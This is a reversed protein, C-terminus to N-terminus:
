NQPLYVTFTSGNGEESEVTMKGNHLEVIQRAIALGLGVGESSRFKEVRYFSKFIHEQEEKSIGCGYDRIRAVAYGEECRTTITVVVKEKSYKVANNILNQFLMMVLIVDVTIDIEQLDLQFEIERQAKIEEEECVSQIIDKLSIRERKLVVNDRELRSLELLQQIINNVKLAQRQIIELTKELNEKDELNLKTYECQTLIVAVPTRLEHAVDFNFRKQSSFIKELKDLMRNNAESLVTLEHFKGTYEIRRSLDGEFRIGEAMECLQKIPDSFKKAIVYSFISAIIIIIPISLYSIVRIIQYKSSVASQKVVCRVIIKKGIKRTMETHVRDLLYYEEGGVLFELLEGTIKKQPFVTELNIDLFEGLYAGAYITGERDMIIFHLEDEEEIFGDLIKIEGNEYKVHRSNELLEKKLQSRIDATIAKTAFINIIVLSIGSILFLISVVGVLIYKKISITKIRRM